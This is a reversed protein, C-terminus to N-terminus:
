RSSRADKSLTSYSHRTLMVLIVYEANYDALLEAEAEKLTKIIGQQEERGTHYWAPLKITAADTERKNFQAKQM